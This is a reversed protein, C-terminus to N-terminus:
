RRSGFRRRRKKRPEEEAAPAASAAKPGEGMPVLEVEAGTSTLRQQLQDGELRSLDSEVARPLDTLLAKADKLELGLADRLERVM